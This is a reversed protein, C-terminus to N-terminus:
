LIPRIDKAPFLVDINGFHLQNRRHSHSETIEARYGIQSLDIYRYIAAHHMFVIYQFLFM